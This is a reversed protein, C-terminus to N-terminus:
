DQIQYLAMYADGVETIDPWRRSWSRAKESWRERTAASELFTRLVGSIGGREADILCAGEGLVEPVGGVSTCIAPLGATVAELNALGFSETTSLSVYVDAAALYPAVDDVALVQLRRGFGARDSRQILAGPDGDGLLCLRLEPCVDALAVCADLLADFGKLPVLRGVGLVYLAGSEWGLQKRAVARSPPLSLSPRAHPIISWHSPLAPVGLDIMVRRLALHTPAVVWNSERLIWAEIRRMWRQTRPGQILGDELTARSYCGFGHETVGWKVGKCGRFLCGVWFGVAIWPDHLHVHTYAEQKALEAAFLGVDLREAWATALRILDPRSDLGPITLLRRLWLERKGLRATSLDAQSLCRVRLGRRRLEAVVPAVSRGLGYRYDAGQERTVMLLAPKLGPFPRDGPTKEVAQSM